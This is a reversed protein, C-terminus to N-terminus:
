TSMQSELSHMGLSFSSSAANNAKVSATFPHNGGPLLGEQPGEDQETPTLKTHSTIDEQPSVAPLKGEALTKSHKESHIM